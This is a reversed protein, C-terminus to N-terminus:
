GKGHYRRATVIFQTDTEEVNVVICTHLMYTIWWQPYVESSCESFLRVGFPNIICYSKTKNYREEHTRDLWEKVTKM